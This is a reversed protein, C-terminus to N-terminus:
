LTVTFRAVSWYENIWVHFLEDWGSVLVHLVWGMSNWFYSWFSLLCYLQMFLLELGTEHPNIHLSDHGNGRGRRPECGVSADRSSKMGLTWLSPGSFLFTWSSQKPNIPLYRGGTVILYYLIVRRLVCCILDQLLQATTGYFIILILLEQTM